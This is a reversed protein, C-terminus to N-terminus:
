AAEQADPEDAAGGAPSEFDLDPTDKARSEAIEALAKLQDRRTAGLSIRSEKTLGNFWVGLSKLGLEAQRLGEQFLTDTATEQPRPLAGGEAWAAVARGCEETIQRGEPFLPRHQEQLKLPQPVGPRDQLLLFSCTLEFPFSKDCIPQFGKPVIQQKGSQDRIIEVKEEARMCIILHARVQLLRQVMAKHAMKPKIWAAMKVRDRKGYDNGAMRNLEEEHWDLVGGESAWEHSFSDILIASHGAEDAAKIAGSYADPRFPPRLELYDFAFKDAYHLGRRAETDIMAFRKGPGAIGAALRMATYTKGGGSPGALGILLGVKERIAERFEYPMLEGGEEAADM